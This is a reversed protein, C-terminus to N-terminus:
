MTADGNVGNIGLWLHNPLVSKTTRVEVGNTKLSIAKNEEVETKTESTPLMCPHVFCINPKRGYKNIYYNTANIIKTSLEIKNDNDFWLMGIAKL